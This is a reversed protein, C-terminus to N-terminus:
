FGGYSAMLLGLLGMVLGISVLDGSCALLRPGSFCVTLDQEQRNKQAGGAKERHRELPEESAPAHAVSQLLKMVREVEVEESSGM